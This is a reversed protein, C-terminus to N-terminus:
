LLFLIMFLLGLDLAVWLRVVIEVAVSVCCVRLRFLGVVMVCLSLYM